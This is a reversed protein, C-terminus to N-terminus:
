PEQLLKMVQSRYEKAIGAQYGQHSWRVIGRRDILVVSPMGDVSYRSSAAGDRDSVIPFTVPHDKLFPTADDPYADEDIGLLVLGSSHSEKYIQDLAPFEDRCPGCWSAWFNILVVQGRLQELSIQGGSRLPLAFMPAKQGIVLGAAMSTSVLCTLLTAAALRSRARRM